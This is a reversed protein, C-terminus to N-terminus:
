YETKARKKTLESEITTELTKPFSIKKRRYGKERFKESTLIILLIVPIALFGALYSYNVETWSKYFFYTSIPSCVIGLFSLSKSYRWSIISIVLLFLNISLASWFSLNYNAIKPEFFGTSYRYLFILLLCLLSYIWIGYFQLRKM